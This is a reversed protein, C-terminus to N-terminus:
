YEQLDRDPHWKVSSSRLEKPTELSQTELDVVTNMQKLIRGSTAVSQVSYIDLYRQPTQAVVAGGVIVMKVAPSTKVPRDAGMVFVSAWSTGDRCRM